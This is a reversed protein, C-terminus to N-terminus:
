AGRDEASVAGLLSAERPEFCVERREEEQRVGQCGLRRPMIWIARPREAAIARARETTADQPPPARVADAGAGCPVNAAGSAEVGGGGVGASASANML